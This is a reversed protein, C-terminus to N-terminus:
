LCPSHPNQLTETFFVFFFYFNCVFKNSCFIDEHPLEDYAEKFRVTRATRIFPIAEIRILNKRSLVLKLSLIHRKRNSSECIEFSNKGIGFNIVSTMYM